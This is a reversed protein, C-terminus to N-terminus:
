LLRLTEPLDVVRTSTSCSRPTLNDITWARYPAILDPPFRRLVLGGNALREREAEIVRVCEAASNPWEYGDDNLYAQVMEASDDVPRTFAHSLRTLAAVLTSPPLTMTCRHLTGRRASAYCGTFGAPMKHPSWNPEVCPLRLPVVGPDTVVAALYGFCRPHECTFVEVRPVALTQSQFLAALEARNM